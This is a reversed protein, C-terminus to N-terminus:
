VASRITSSSFSFSASPTGSAADAADAPGCTTARSASTSSPQDTTSASCANACVSGSAGASSRTRCANFLAAHGLHHRRDDRQLVLLELLRQPGAPHGLEDALLADLV